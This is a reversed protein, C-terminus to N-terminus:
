QPPELTKSLVHIASDLMGIAAFVEVTRHPGKSDKDQHADKLSEVIGQIECIRNRVYTDTMPKGENRM